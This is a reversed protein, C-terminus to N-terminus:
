PLRVVRTKLRASDGAGHLRVVYIGPAVARGAENRGDWVVVSSGTMGQLPLVRVLRYVKDYVHLQANGAGAQPIDIPINTPESARSPNPYAAHLTFQGSAQVLSLGATASRASENGAQDRATVQYWVQTTGAPITTDVYETGTIPTSNLAEFPDNENTRRYVTYGNLDPEANPSWRVRAHTGEDRMAALGTPAAPPATDYVWDWGVVNSLPSVNSADDVAKVAFFYTTDRSLGRVVLSQHQGSALPSPAGDIVVASSWNADTIPTTSMRVEYHDVRGTTGDDGPATWQLALTDAGAGAAQTVAPAM